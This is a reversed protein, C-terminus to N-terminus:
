SFIFHETLDAQSQLKSQYALGETASKLKDTDYKKFFPSPGYEQKINQELEPETQVAQNVSQSLPMNSGRVLRVIQSNLLTMQQLGDMQRIIKRELKLLEQRHSRVVDEDALAEINSRDLGLWRGVLNEFGPREVFWYISLAALGVAIGALVIPLSTATVSASFLGVISFVLSQGAFFGGSFFLVGSMASSILKAFKLYPKNLATTYVARAEDLANDREYFLALMKKFLQLVEVDTIETYCDDIAKIIKNIHKVQELFTDLLQYSKTVKVGLNKSIEVLDFGYFVGVSLVSFAFGAIFVVATPVVSSLRLLSAIGDFGQCIALITGAVALFIFQFKGFWRVPPKEKKDADDDPPIFSEGLDHLLSAYLSELLFRSEKDSQRPQSLWAVIEALSLQNNRCKEWQHLTDDDVLYRLQGILQQSRKSIAVTKMM